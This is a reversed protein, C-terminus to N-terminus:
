IFYLTNVEYADPDIAVLSITDTYPQRGLSIKGNFPDIKGDTLQYVDINMQLGKQWISHSEDCLPPLNPINKGLMQCIESMPALLLSDNKSLKKFVDKLDPKIYQLDDESKQRLFVMQASWQSSKHVFSLTRKLSGLIIAFSGFFMEFRIYYEKDQHFSLFRSYDNNIEEIVDPNTIGIKNKIKLWEKLDTGNDHNGIWLGVFVSPVGQLYIKM